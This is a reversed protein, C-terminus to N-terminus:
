AKWELLFTCAPSDERLVVVRPERVGMVKLSAELIGIYYHPRGLIDNLWMEWSGPGRETMRVEVYNDSNRFARHFQSLSQRPGLTRAATAMVRGLMTSTLGEILTHGMRRWAEERPLDPWVDRLAIDLCKLWTTIAYAPLLEGDLDLGVQRLSARAAPSLRRGLSLHFLGQVTVSYILRTDPTEM